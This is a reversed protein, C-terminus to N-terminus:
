QLSAFIERLPVVIEPEATRLVGDRAERAGEATHVWARRRQPDIVWVYPVGFELYDDIREQMEAVRDDPSLIEICVLPPQTLVPGHPCAGAVVCIDPVRFRTPKVQVRQEVYVRIAMRERLAGLFIALETQLESHDLEGVNREVLRGDVYERDPAYSTSLYEEVGPATQTAM